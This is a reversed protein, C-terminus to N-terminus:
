LVGKAAVFLPDGDQGDRLFNMSNHDRLAEVESYGQTSSGDVRFRYDKTGRYTTGYYVFGDAAETLTEKKIGPASVFLFNPKNKPLRIWSDYFGTSVETNEKVAVVVRGADILEAILVSFPTTEPELNDGDFVFGVRHGHFLKNTQEKAERYHAGGLLAAVDIPAMGNKGGIKVWKQVDTMPRNWGTGVLQYRMKGEKANKYPTKSFADSLPGLYLAKDALLVTMAPANHARVHLVDEKSPAFTRPQPLPLLPLM